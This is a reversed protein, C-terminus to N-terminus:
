KNLSRSWTKTKHQFTVTSQTIKAIRIGNPLRDGARVIQTDYGNVEVMATISGPAATIGYLTVTTEIPPAKPKVVVKKRHRAREEEELRRREDEKELEIQALRKVDMPSLMPDRHIKPQYKLGPEEPRRQDQAQSSSASGGAGPPEQAAAPPAAGSATPSAAPSGSPATGAAFAAGAAAVDAPAAAATSVPVTAQPPAVQGAATQGAATGTSALPNTLNQAMKTDNFVPGSEASRRTPEAPKHNLLKWWNWFMFAPVALAVALILWGLAGKGSM